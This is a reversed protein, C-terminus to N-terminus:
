REYISLAFDDDLLLSGYVQLSEDILSFRDSAFCAELIHQFDFDLLQTFFHFLIDRRSAVENKDILGKKKPVFLEGLVTMVDKLVREIRHLTKLKFM